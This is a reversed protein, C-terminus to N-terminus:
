YDWGDRAANEFTQREGNFVLTAKGPRGHRSKAVILETKGRAGALRANWDEQRQNFKEQTEKVGQKLTENELYYEERYLMIVADADQEISGSERLDSLLPRKDERQEVARSLQSLAIVPVDLAKAMQKLGRSIESIEQTRNGDRSKRDTEILQLYDVIILKVGRRKVMLRATDRVQSLTLDARADIYIPIQDLQGAAEHLKQFEEVSLRGMRQRDTSIGSLMALNRATWQAGSMELTIVGIPMPLQADRALRMAIDGAFASKGMAPRGAVVILDSPMMGGILRDLDYFGTRIIGSAADGKMALDVQHLVEQTIDRQHRVAQQAGHRPIDGLENEHEHLLEEATGGFDISARQAIETGQDILRRRLWYDVIARGYSATNAYTIESAALNALYRRPGGLEELGPEHDFMQFILVLSPQDGREAMQLMAGYIRGHLEDAFHHPQLFGAVKELLLGNSLLAGLLAQEVGVSDPYAPRDILVPEPASSYVPDYGGEPSM